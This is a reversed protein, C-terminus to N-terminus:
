SSVVVVAIGLVILVIVILMRQDCVVAPRAAGIWSMVGGGGDDGRDSWPEGFTPTGNNNQGTGPPSYVRLDNIAFYAENFNAATMVTEACTGPCGSGSWAGSSGAWDGCFQTDFIMQMETFHCGSAAFHADPLRWSDPEPTRSRDWVDEPTDWRKFIWISIGGDMWATVYVGGGDDNFGKGTTRDAASAIGCGDNKGPASHCDTGLTQGSFVGPSTLKCGEGTHLTMQNREAGNVGEVIDVEGGNPWNPGCYWYAPWISCGTPIHDLDLITLSPLSLLRKSHIRVSPRPQNLGLDTWSDARMIVRGEGDTYILGKDRCQDVTQYDVIGNTPDRDSWFDWDDFFSPGQYSQQLVWEPDGFDRVQPRANITIGTPLLLVYLLPAISLIRARM